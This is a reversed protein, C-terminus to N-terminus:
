KRLRLRGKRGQMLADMEEDNQKKYDGFEQQMRTQAELITIIDILPEVKRARIAKSRTSVMTARHVGIIRIPDLYIMYLRRFYNLHWLKLPNTDEFEM